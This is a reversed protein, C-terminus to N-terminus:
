DADESNNGEIEIGCKETSTKGNIGFSKTYLQSINPIGELNSYEDEEFCRVTKGRNRMEGNGLANLEVPLFISVSSFITHSSTKCRKSIKNSPLISM